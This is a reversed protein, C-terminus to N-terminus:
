RAGDLVPTISAAGTAQPDPRLYTALDPVMMTFVTGKGVESVFTVRGCLKEACKGVLYLGLGNGKEIDARVFPLFIRDYYTKDIGKGTDSVMINTKRDSFEAKVTVEHPMDYKRFKVGNEIVNELMVRLLKADTNIVHDESVENYVTTNERGPLLDAIIEACMARLDVRTVLLEKRNIIHIAAIKNLMKDMVTAVDGVKKLLDTADPDSVTLMGVQRLGMLTSLPGRFDHSARYLFTDLEDNLATLERTRETVQRELLAAVRRKRRYRRAVMYILLFLLLVTSASGFLLGRQVSMEKEKLENDKKILALEALKADFEHNSQIALLNRSAELRDLSDKKRLYQRYYDVSAKYNGKNYSLESQRQLYEVPWLGPHQDVIYYVSDHYRGAIATKKLEDYIDALTRYANKLSSWQHYRKSIRTDIGLHFVASDYQKMRRYVAGINGHTLGVWFEDGVEIAIARSRRFFAIALDYRGANMYSLALTNFASKATRKNKKNSFVSPYKEYIGVARELLNISETFNGAHYHLVGAQDYLSFTTISPALTQDLGSADLLQELAEEPKGQSRYIVGLLLGLRVEEEVSGCKKNLRVGENAKELARVSKYREVLITTHLRALVVRECPRLGKRSGAQNFFRECAELDRKRLSDLLAEHDGAALMDALGGHQGAVPLTIAVALTVAYLCRLFTRKMM